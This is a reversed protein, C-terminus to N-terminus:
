RQNNTPVPQLPRARAELSTRSTSHSRNLAIVLEATKVTGLDALNLPLPVNTHTHPTKM